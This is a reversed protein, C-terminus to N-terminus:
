LISGNVEHVSTNVNLSKCFIEIFNVGLSGDYSRSKKHVLHFNWRYCSYTIRVYYLLLKLLYEYIEASPVIQLEM